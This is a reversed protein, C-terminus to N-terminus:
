VRASSSQFAAELKVSAQYQNDDTELLLIGERQAAEVLDPPAKRGSCLVMAYVGALSAVALTNLHAQITLLVSKAPANAMIDSLLDSTFGAEVQTAPCTDQVCHWGAVRRLEEVSLRKM